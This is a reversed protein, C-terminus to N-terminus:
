EAKIPFDSVDLLHVLFKLVNMSDALEIKGSQDVDANLLGQVSVQDVGVYVRNMRVVDAIDVEGDENADGWLIQKEDTTDSNESNESNEPDGSESPEPQSESPEPIEIGDIISYYAPKASYDENFLLPNKSARWSQDDTTGWLVVASIQDKHEVIADMIDSYYQAQEEFLSDNVTADLETIQVDLGTECFKDLAKKYVNVAPFADAGSRADLHSQMGIGDIFHGDANIEEVMKVIADTKQPMYENFDNYYLKCGEPAYKKAFEFAPKIFSNDGFIQVWPSNASGEEQSGPNRYKGDDLWCENVVDFAYFDVDSYDKEIAAFVNKIYNEMRVLMKEKSVWEGNEDYNEKFFWTPTQQHWVLVHGRVPINNERAFDLISKASALSVQPNEDDGSQALALCANKDLLADPKMENGPTISNFHKLILAKTTEPALEKTTTATGFKFYDAYVDKLGPIDAQPHYVPAAEVLFDDVYINDSGGEFYVYVDSMENTYSVKLDNFEQWGAGNLNTLNEYHVEGAADTYQFSVTLSTYYQGMAKASILYATNPNCKDDLRFAPGNWSKSRESACLAKSGSVANDENVSLVTTDNAGRNTWASADGDEFDSWYVVTDLPAEATVGLVPMTGMTCAIALLGALLRKTSFKGM